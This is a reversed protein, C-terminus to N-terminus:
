RQDHSGELDFEGQGVPVSVPASAALPDYSRLANVADLRPASDNGTGALELTGQRPDLGRISQAYFPLEKTLERMQEPELQTGHEEAHADLLEQAQASEASVKEEFLTRLQVDQNMSAFFSLGDVMAARESEDPSRGNEAEFADFSATADRMEAALQREQVVPLGHALETIPARTNESQDARIRSELEMSEVVEQRDSAKMEPIGARYATKALGTLVTAGTGAATVAGEAINRRHKLLARGGMVAAPVALGGSALALGGYMAAGKVAAKYAAPNTAATALKTGATGVVRTTAGIGRTALYQATLAKNNWIASRTAKGDAWKQQLMGAGGSIQRRVNDPVSRVRHMALRGQRGLTKAETGAAIAMGAARDTAGDLRDDHRGGAEFAELRAGFSMGTREDAGPGDFAKAVMSDDPLTEDVADSAPEISNPGEGIKAASESDGAVAQDDASEEVGDTVTGQADEAGSTIEKYKSTEADVQPTNTADGVLEENAAASK